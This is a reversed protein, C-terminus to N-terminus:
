VEKKFNDFAGFVVGNIDILKSEGSLSLHLLYEINGNGGKIPSFCLGKVSLGSEKSMSIIKNLVATHAKKSKVIGSKNLESRGAEFQPKVLTVAQGGSKLISKIPLLAFGLSIFSLDASVFDMKEKFTEATIDRVNVKEINVIRPDDALSKDLQNHGVDVAYIKKAGRQLMCDTFGGTSAGLDACVTGELSLGFTDLAAKLKYGGRSVFERKESKIDLKDASDILYSAKRVEKGNIFVGGSEIMKKADTRSKSYNNAALFIDLRTKM